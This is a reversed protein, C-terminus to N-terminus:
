YKSLETQLGGESGVTGNRLIAIATEVIEIDLHIIDRKLM